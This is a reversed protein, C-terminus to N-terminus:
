ILLLNNEHERWLWQSYIMNRPHPIAPVVIWEVGNKNIICSRLTVILGPHNGDKSIMYHDYEIQKLLPKINDKEEEDESSIAIIDSELFNSNELRFNDLKQRHYFKRKKLPLKKDDDNSLFNSSNM